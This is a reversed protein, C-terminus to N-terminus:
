NKNPLEAPRLELSLSQGGRRVKLTLPQGIQGQDVALQVDAPNKVANSAVAEILDCARLGGKAAPSGRLVEVVVVGNTEPLRCEANTANM